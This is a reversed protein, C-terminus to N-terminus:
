MTNYTNRKSEGWYLVWKAKTTRHYGKACCGVGKADCGVTACYDTDNCVSITSDLLQVLVDDFVQKYILQSVNNPLSNM